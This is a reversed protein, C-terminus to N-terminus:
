SATRMSPSKTTPHLRDLMIGQSFDLFRGCNGYLSVETYNVQGGLKNGDVVISVITDDYIGNIFRMSVAGDSPPDLTDQM